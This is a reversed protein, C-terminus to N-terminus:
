GDSNKTSFQFLCSLHYKDSPWFAERNQMDDKRASANNKKPIFCIFFQLLLLSLNLCLIFCASVFSSVFASVLPFLPALLILEHIFTWATISDIEFTQFSEQTNISNLIEQQNFQFDIFMEAPATERCPTAKVGQNTVAPIAILQKKRLNELKLSSQRHM